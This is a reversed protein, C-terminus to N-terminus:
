EYRLAELPDVRSARQAPLAVAALSIVVLVVPVAVFVAADYPQVEFLFAALLRALFFAGGLGVAIGIVVLLMGQRIIMHKVRDAEAGLAMRIGIEPTRHQVTYAMLGYIGIAALLVASAGFVSMLLMNLRQRSTSLSVVERMSQVGTVPLGTAQRLTEQLTASLLGPEGQTRVIWAMPGAAFMLANLADPM